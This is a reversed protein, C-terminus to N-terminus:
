GREDRGRVVVYDGGRRLVVDLEDDEHGDLVLFCASDARVRAYEELSLTVAAACDLRRCECIFGSPPGDWHESLEAVRDNIERFVAQAKVADQRQLDRLDRVGGSM